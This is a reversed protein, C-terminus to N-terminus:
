NSSYSGPWQTTRMQFSEWAEASASSFGLSIGILIGVAIIVVLWLALYDGKLYRLIFDM